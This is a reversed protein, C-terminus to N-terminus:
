LLSFGSIAKMQRLQLVKCMLMAHLGVKIAEGIFAKFTDPLNTESGLFRLFARVVNSAELYQKMVYYHKIIHYGMFKRTIAVVDAAFDVLPAETASKSLGSLTMGNPGALALFEYLLRKSTLSAGHIACFREAAAMVAKCVEDVSVVSKASM